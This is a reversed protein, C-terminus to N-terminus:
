EHEYNEDFLSKSCKKLYSELRCSNFSLTVANLLALSFDPVCKRPIQTANKSLALLWYQLIIIDHKTSMMQYELQDEEIIVIKYLYIYKSKNNLELKNNLFGAWEM